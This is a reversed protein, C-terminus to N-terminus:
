SVEKRKRRKITPTPIPQNRALFEEYEQPFRAAYGRIDEMVLRALIEAGTKDLTIM